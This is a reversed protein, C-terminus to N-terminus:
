FEVSKAKDKLIGSLYEREDAGLRAIAARFNAIREKKELFFAIAYIIRTGEELLAHLRTLGEIGPDQDSLNDVEDMIRKLEGTLVPYSNKREVFYEADGVIWMEVLTREEDSIDGGSEIRPIVTLIKERSVKQAQERFRDEYTSFLAGLQQYLGAESKEQADKFFGAARERFEKLDTM